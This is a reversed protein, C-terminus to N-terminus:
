RDSSPRSRTLQSAFLEIRVRGGEVTQRVARLKIRLLKYDYANKKELVIVGYAVVGM